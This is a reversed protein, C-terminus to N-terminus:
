AVLKLAEKYARANLNAAEGFWLSDLRTSVSRGREWTLYESIANYAAWASGKIAPLDNGRGKEFLPIVKAQVKEIAKDLDEDCVTRKTIEPAFVRKVYARLTDERVGLRALARMQEVTGAFKRKNWDIIEHLKEIAISVNKTHRIRLLASEDHAAALTNACVVRTATYGARVTLSGDHSNSLLFFANVPDGPMIDATTGIVRALMWVRRGGKLSGAAEIRVKGDQIVPDFFRFADYNQVPHYDPSVNGLVSKDSCRIISCQGTKLTEGEFDVTSEQKTVKWDLCAIRLAEEVNAPADKLIVGLGHWPVEGVFVGSEFEHSM